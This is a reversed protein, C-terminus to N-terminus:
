GKWLPTQLELRPAEKGQKQWRKWWWHFQFRMVPHELLHLQQMGGFSLWSSFPSVEHPIRYADEASPFEYSILTCDLIRREKIEEQPWGIQEFAGDSTTGNGSQLQYRWVLHRGGWPQQASWFSLHYNNNKHSSMMNTSVNENVSISSRIPIWGCGWVLLELAEM